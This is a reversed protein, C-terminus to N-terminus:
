VSYQTYRSRITPEPSSSAGLHYKCPKNPHPTVWTELLIAWMHRFYADSRGSRGILGIGFCDASVINVLNSVVLPLSAYRRHLRGGDRVGAHRRAPGAPHLPAPWQGQGAHWTCYRGNSCARRTSCCASSSRAVFAATANWVINWVVPHRGRSRRGGSPCCCRRRSRELWHRPRAAALDGPDPMVAEFGVSAMLLCGGGPQEESKGLLNQFGKWFLNSFKNM